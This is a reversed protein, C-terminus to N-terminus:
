RASTRMEDADIIRMNANEGERASICDLTTM